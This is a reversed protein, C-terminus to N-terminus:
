LYNFIALASQPTGSIPWCMILQLSSKIERLCPQGVPPGLAPHPGPRFTHPGGLRLLNCNNKMLSYFGYRVWQHASLRAVSPESVFGSMSLITWSLCYWTDWQHDYLKVIGSHTFVRLVSVGLKFTYVHIYISQIYIYAYKELWLVHLWTYM